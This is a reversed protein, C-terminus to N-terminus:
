GHIRNRGEQKALYLEKNALELLKKLEDDQSPIMGACGISLTVYESAASYHHPIHIDEVAKRIREAVHRAGPLDSEPLLVLFEEGGVRAVFDSPRVLSAKITSAIRRLCDDGVGHGYNDNFLKFCDVNLMLLCIMFHNRLARRWETALIEDLRQRNPIGTLNDLLALKELLETRKKLNIHNRVRARVTPLGFPKTIYDVAGLNFGHEQDSVDNKATVFIIPIDWTLPSEKLRQCVEYGDMGPMMVDLLILDPTEKSRALELAVPGTTAVKIQYEGKLAHALMRINIPSDDVILVLPLPEDIQVFDMSVPNNPIIM